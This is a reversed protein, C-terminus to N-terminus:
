NLNKIFKDHIKSLFVLSAISGVFAFFMDWQTDWVDGQTGLFADSATGTGIAVWWEFFEYLASIALCMSVIFVFQWRRGNIINKRIVVERIILAPIFGQAFHGIRDYHNRSFNFTEKMWQGLPVEAYTYHGGIILIISHLTILFYVLQTIKFKNYTFILILLGIIAPLVELFWTFYDHPNIASWILVIFFLTLLSIINKNDM